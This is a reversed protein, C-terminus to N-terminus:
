CPTLRLEGIESLLDEVAWCKTSVEFGATFSNFDFRNKHNSSNRCSPVRSCLENTTGLVKAECEVEEDVLLLVVLRTPNAQFSKLQRRLFPVKKELEVWKKVHTTMLDNGIVIQHRRECLLYEKLCRLLHRLTLRREKV